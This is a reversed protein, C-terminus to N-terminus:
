RNNILVNNEIIFDALVGGVIKCGLPTFHGHAHEWYLIQGKYKHFEDIPSVIYFDKLKEEVYKNMPLEFEDRKVAIPVEFIILKANAKNCVNKIRKLLAITLDFKYKTLDDFQSYETSNSSEMNINEDLTNVDNVDKKGNISVMFSKVNVAARERLWTYLHCNSALWRYIPYSFLKERIKVAPLYAAADRVLSDNELKFLKSRVNDNFDSRHFQLIILDPQYKLGENTLTVLEEETGHGSVSLNIVENKIGRANLLNSATESFTNENEVGYGMGFSDGLILIRKISDAKSYPIERDSRVGKSNIKFHVKYDPTKHMYEVNPMNGRVGYKTAVIYRPLMPMPHFVRLFFEAAVIIYVLWLFKKVIKM